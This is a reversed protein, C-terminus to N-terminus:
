SIRSLFANINKCVEEYTAYRKKDETLISLAYRLTRLSGVVIRMNNINDQEILKNINRVHFDFYGETFLRISQYLGEISVEYNCEFNGIVEKVIADNRVATLKLKAYILEKTTKENLFR